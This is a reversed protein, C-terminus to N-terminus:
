FGHKAAKDVDGAKVLFHGRLNPHDPSCVQWCLFTLVGPRDADFKMEVTHGAPVDVPGLRLLPIAFSHLLDASRLRMVVHDGQNLPIERARTPKKRWYNYGVIEEQTWIGGNAIATLTIVKTGPPYRHALSVAQWYWLLLPLGALVLVVALIGTAEKYKTIREM